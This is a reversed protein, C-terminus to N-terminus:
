SSSLGISSRSSITADKALIMGKWFYENLRALPIIRCIRCNGIHILQFIETTSNKTFILFIISLVDQKM